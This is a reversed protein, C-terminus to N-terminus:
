ERGAEKQGSVLLRGIAAGVSAFAALVVTMGLITEFGAGDTRGFSWLLLLAVGVSVTYSTLTEALPHDLPGGDRHTQRGGFDAYFVLGLTLLLSTAVIVLLLWSSAGVGIMMPEETPAVNVAFLLAGGAGVLLRQFPGVARKAGTSEGSLTTAAVSAGFAIPISELAVKGAADRLSTGVEIRGLVVLAVLAVVIGIGMTAASDLVLELWTRERRFGATANYGLVILAAVGLLLVLKWWPLVFGHAWVEMTYLLPLGIVLGGGIARMYDRLSREIAGREKKAVAGTYCIAALAPM